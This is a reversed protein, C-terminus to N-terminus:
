VQRAPENGALLRLVEECTGDADQGRDVRGVCVALVDALFLAPRVSDTSIVCNFERKGKLGFIDAMTFQGQEAFQTYFLWRIIFNAMLDNSLQFKRDVWLDLLAVKRKEHFVKAMHRVVWYILEIYVPHRDGEDAFQRIAMAPRIDLRDDGKLEELLTRLGCSISQVTAAQKEVTGETCTFKNRYTYVGISTLGQAFALLEDRDLMWGKVRGVDPLRQAVRARLEGALSELRSLRIKPAFLAAVSHIEGIRPNMNGSEDVFGVVEQKVWENGNM